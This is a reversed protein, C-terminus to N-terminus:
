VSAPLFSTLETPSFRFPPGRGGRYISAVSSKNIAQVAQALTRPEFFRHFNSPHGELNGRQHHRPKGQAPSPQTQPLGVGGGGPATAARHPGLSLLADFCFHSPSRMRCAATNLSYFELKSSVSWMGRVHPTYSPGRDVAPIVGHTLVCCAILTEMAIRPVHGFNSIFVEPSVVQDAMSLRGYHKPAM